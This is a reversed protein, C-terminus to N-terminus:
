MQEVFELKLNDHEMDTSCDAYASEFMPLYEESVIHLVESEEQNAMYVATSM